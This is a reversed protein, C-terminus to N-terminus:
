HFQCAHYFYIVKQIEVQIQVKMEYVKNLMKGPTSCNTSDECCTVYSVNTSQFFVM